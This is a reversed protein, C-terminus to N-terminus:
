GLVRATQRILSIVVAAPLLSNSPKGEDDNVVWPQQLISINKTAADYAYDYAPTIEYDDVHQKIVDVPISNRLLIKPIGHLGLLTQMVEHDVNIRERVSEIGKDDGVKPVMRAHDCGANDCRLFFQKKEEDYGVTSTALLKLNRPTQCIPCVVRYKMREDIISEPIDIFIFFDPDDRYGMLARVYLSVSVQDLNRPFGDLFIAKRGLRDIEMEVLALVAETPLLTKQNHGVVIDVVDAFPLFGRYKSACTALFAKKTVPDTLVKHARRVVDGVSVHALRESGVAEMFLKSYTGKGSNKKGLFFAVFTNNELFTKIREIDDGAKLLFYEKREVPDELQFVRTANKVRTTEIPFSFVEM